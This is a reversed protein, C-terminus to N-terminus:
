YICQRLRLEDTRGINPVSAVISASPAAKSVVRWPISLLPIERAAPGPAGQRPPDCGLRRQRSRSAYIKSSPILTPRPWLGTM